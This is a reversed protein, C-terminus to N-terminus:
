ESCCGAPHGTGYIGRAKIQPGWRRELTEDIDIVLPGRGILATLRQGLLIQSAALASWHAHSLVRRTAPAM